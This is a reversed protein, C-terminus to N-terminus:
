GLERVLVEAHLWDGMEGEEGIVRGGDVGLEAGRMQVESAFSPFCSKAVCASRERMQLGSESGGVALHHGGM